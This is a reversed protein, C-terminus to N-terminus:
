ESGAVSRTFVHRGKLTYVGRTVCPMVVFGSDCPPLFENLVGLSCYSQKFRGEQHVPSIHQVLKPPAAGLAFLHCRGRLGLRIRKKELDKIIERVNTRVNTRM